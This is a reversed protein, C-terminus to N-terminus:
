RSPSRGSGDTTAAVFTASVAFFGFVGIAYFTSERSSRWRGSASSRLLPTIVAASSLARPSRWFRSAGSGSPCSAPARREELLVIGILATVIALAYDTVVTSFEGPRRGVVPLRSAGRRWPSGGSASASRSPSPWTPCSSAWSNASAAAPSPFSSASACGGRLRGLGGDGPHRDGRHHDFVGLPPKPPRPPLESM